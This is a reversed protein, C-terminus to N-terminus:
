TRRRRLGIGVNLASLLLAFVIAVIALLTATGASSKATAAESNATQAAAVASAARRTVADVKSAIEATSPIAVPFQAASSDGVSDFTSPGSVVTQDIPTGDIAGFIHFTYTGVVTPILPADYEDLRGSGTDPDYAPAPCFPSSATGGATVTVQFDPHSCDRNLNSVPTGRQDGASAVDIFVQVANGTDIYTDTGSAPEFQWGIAVRYRGATFIDHASAVAFSTALALLAGAVAASARRRNISV